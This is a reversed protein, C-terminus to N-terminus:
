CRRLISTPGPFVCEAQHIIAELPEHSFHRFTTDHELFGWALDLGRAGLVYDDYWSGAGLRRRSLSSKEIHSGKTSVHNNAEWRLGPARDRWWIGSLCCRPEGAGEARGAGAWEPTQPSRITPPSEVRRCAPSAGSVTGIAGILNYSVFFWSIGPAKLATSLSFSLLM